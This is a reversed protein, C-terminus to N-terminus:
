KTLSDERAPIHYSIIRYDKSLGKIGKYLSGRMTDESDDRTVHYKRHFM